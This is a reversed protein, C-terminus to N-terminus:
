WTDGSSCGPSTVAGSYTRYFRQMQRFFANELFMSPWGQPSMKCQFTLAMVPEWGVYFYWPVLGATESHRNEPQRQRSLRM